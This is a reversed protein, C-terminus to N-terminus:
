LRTAHTIYEIFDDIKEFDSVSSKQQAQSWVVDRMSVLGILTGDAALCPLHRFNNELMLSLIKHLDDEKSCSVVGRSMIDSVRRTALGAELLGFCRAVDRESLMGSVKRSSAAGSSGDAVPALVPVAGVDLKALFRAAEPVTSREELYPVGALFENPNRMDVGAQPFRGLFAGPLGTTSSMRRRGALQPLSRPAALRALVVRRHASM